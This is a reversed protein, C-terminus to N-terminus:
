GAGTDLRLREPRAELEIRIEMARGMHDRAAREAEDPSRNRLAALLQDHEKVAIEARGPYVFTTTSFRRVWRHIQEVFRRLMDNRSARALADHFEINLRAMDAYDGASAAQEMLRNIQELRQLDIPQAHSAALRAAAGDLAERVIYLEIIQDVSIRAVVLGRYRDREALHEAELRMLAERIPTRSVSFLSALYEEGLRSGPPLWGSEISEVLAGHVADATSGEGARRDFEARVQEETTSREPADRRSRAV